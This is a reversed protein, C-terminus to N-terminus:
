MQSIVERNEAPRSPVPLLSPTGGGPPTSCKPPTIYHPCAFPSMMFITCLTTSKIFVPAYFHSFMAKCFHVDIQRQNVCICDYGFIINDDITDIMFNVSVAISRWKDKLSNNLSHWIKPMSFSKSYSFLLRLGEKKTKLRNQSHSDIDQIRYFDLGTINSVQM